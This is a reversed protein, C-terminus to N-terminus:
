SRISILSWDESVFFPSFCDGNYLVILNRQSVQKKALWAQERKLYRASYRNKKVCKPAVEFDLIFILLGLFQFNIVKVQNKVDMFSSVVIYKSGYCVLLNFNKHVQLIWVQWKINVCNSGANLQLWAAYVFSFHIIKRHNYVKFNLSVLSVFSLQSNWFLLMTTM